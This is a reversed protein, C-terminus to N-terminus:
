GELKKIKEKIDPDNLVRNAERYWLLARDKEGMEEYIEGIIEKLRAQQEQTLRPDNIVDMLFTLADRFKGQLRYANVILQVAKFFYKDSGLVKKANEIASDYNGIGLMAEAMSVYKTGDEELMKIESSIDEAKEAEESSKVCRKSVVAFDEKTPEDFLGLTGELEKGTLFYSQPSEFRLQKSNVTLNLSQYMNNDISKLKELWKYGEEVEQMEFNVLSLLFYKAKISSVFHTIDKLSKLKNARKFVFVIFKLFEPNGQYEEILKPLLTKFNNDHLYSLIEVIQKDLSELKKIERAKLFFSLATELNGMNTHMNGGVIYQNFAEERKGEQMLINAYKECFLPHFNEKLFDKFLSMLTEVNGNNKKFKDYAEELVKFAEYFLEKKRYAQILLKLAQVNLSDIKLVKKLIPIAIDYYEEKIKKEAFSLLVKIAQEKKDLKVLADVYSNLISVSNPYKKILREGIEIVRSYDRKRVARIFEEEESRKKFLGFFVL